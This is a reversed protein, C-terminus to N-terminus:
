IPTKQFFGLLWHTLRVLFEDVKPGRWVLFRPFEPIYHPEDFVWQFPVELPTPEWSWVFYGETPLYPYKRSSCLVFFYFKTPPQPEVPWHEQKQKWMFCSPTCYFRTLVSVLPVSLPTRLVPKTTLLSESCVDCVCDQTKSVLSTNEKPSQM